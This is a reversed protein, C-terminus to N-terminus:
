EGKDQLKRRFYESSRKANDRYQESSKLEALIDKLILNRNEGVINNHEWYQELLEQMKKSAKNEREPIIWLVIFIMFLIGFFSITAGFFFSGWEM